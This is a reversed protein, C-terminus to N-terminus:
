QTPPHFKPQSDLFDKIDGVTNYQKSPLGMESRIKNRLDRVAMMKHSFKYEHATGSYKDRLDRLNDFETEVIKLVDEATM